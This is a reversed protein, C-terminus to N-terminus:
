ISRSIGGEAAAPCCCGDMLGDRRAGGDLRRRASGCHAGALREIEIGLQHAFRAAGPRSGLRDFEGDGALRAGSPHESRGPKRRRTDSLRPKCQVACVRRTLRSAATTSNRASRRTWCMGQLRKPGGADGGSRRGPSPQCRRGGAGCISAFGADKSAAGCSWAGPRVAARGRVPHLRGRRRRGCAARGSGALFPAQLGGSVGAGIRGAVAGASPAGGGCHVRRGRGTRPGAGGLRGSRGALRAGSVREGLGRTGDAWPMGPPPRWARSRGSCRRWRRFDWAPGSRTAAVAMSGSWACSRRARRMTSSSKSAGQACASGDARGGREPRAVAGTSAFGVSPKSRQLVGAIDGYRDPAEAFREWVAAWPGEGRALRAGAVVDAENAPDFELEERCRACFADWGNAGMRGRTADPDGAVASPRSHRRGRAPSRLRRGGTAPRRTSCGADACGGAAGAALCGGYDPRGGGGPWADQEVYPLREGTWDGGNPHHWLAGRFLLEVLPKLRDPCEEGARLEQRAVGPLYVIPPRDDPLRPTELTRDVICRVWVAPGTRRESDYDGLILYEDVRELLADVLPLWERKPDTWLIAAPRTQGDPAADRARLSTVLHDLVTGSVTGGCSTRPCERSCGLKM